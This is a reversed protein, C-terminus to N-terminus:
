LFLAFAGGQAAATKVPPLDHGFFFEVDFLSLQHREQL